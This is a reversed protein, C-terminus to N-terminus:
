IRTASFSSRSTQEAYLQPALPHRITAPINTNFVCDLLQQHDVNDFAATLDLAVLVTRHTPTKRSFGCSHRHRDDVTCTSHKPRFGHQEPHFPIHTLIKTLLLKKLTKTAPCVLSISCWIKGINNDKDHKLIPIIMAKHWIEPILGTSISLNFINILYNIAGQAFKKLHLTSMGFPGIDTSSKALRIAEKTEAPTFSPM